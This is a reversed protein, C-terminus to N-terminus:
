TRNTIITFDDAEPPKRVGSGLNQEWQSFNRAIGSSVHKMYYAYAYLSFSILKHYYISIATISIAKNFVRTWKGVTNTKSYRGWGNSKTVGSTRSCGNDANHIFTLNGNKQSKSTRGTDLLRSLHCEFVFVKRCFVSSGISAQRKIVSSSLLRFM